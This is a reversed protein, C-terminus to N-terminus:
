AKDRKDRRPKSSGQDEESEKGIEIQKLPPPVVMDTPLSMGGVRSKVRMLENPSTIYLYGDEGFSVSTYTTTQTKQLHDLSLTGVVSGDEQSLLTLSSPCAILYLTGKEDVALKSGSSSYMDDHRTDGANDKCDASTMQYLITAYNEDGEVNDEDNDEDDDDEASISLKYVTKTGGSHGNTQSTVLIFLTSYDLGLAMGEIVGTTQFLIDINDDGVDDEEGTTSKWGHADRSQEVAIGPIHVAEKRRYVIGVHHNSMTSSNDNNLHMTDSVFNDSFLLDGFPTYMLHNPRYVRRWQSQEHEEEGNSSQYPVLTVLPTRAGSEGEVRVIRREGWEAVIIHQGASARDANRTLEVALSASGLLPPHHNTTTSTSPCSSKGFLNEPCLTANTGDVKGSGEYDVWLGSRCGSREMHLSRGITIPGGGVEWRWIRGSRGVDALLLYGRGLEEDHVWTTSSLHSLYPVPQQKSDSGNNDKDNSGICEDDGHISEIIDPPSSLIVELRRNHELTLIQEDDDDQRQTNAVYFISRLLKENEQKNNTGVSVSSAVVDYPKSFKSLLGGRNSNGGRTIIFYTLATLFVIFWAYEDYKSNIIISSTHKISAGQRPRKKEESPVGSGNDDNFSSSTTSAPKQANKRRRVESAM